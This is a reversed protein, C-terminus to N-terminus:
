PKLMKRKVAALLGPHHHAVRGGLGAYHNEIIPTAKIRNISAESADPDNVSYNFIPHDIDVFMLNSNPVIMVGETKLNTRNWREEGSEKDMQQGQVLPILYNM